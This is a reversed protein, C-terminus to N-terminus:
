AEPEWPRLHLPAVSREIDRAVSMHAPNGIDFTEDTAAMLLGGDPRHETLATSPPTVLHAVRPAVYSIWAIPFPPHIIRSREWLRTLSSPFAFAREADFEEAIALLASRFVRYTHTSTDAEAFHDTNLCVVNNSTSGARMSLELMFPGHGSPHSRVAFSYGNDTRSSAIERELSSLELAVEVNEEKYWHRLFPGAAALRCATALWRTSLAAPTEPRPAWRASIAYTIDAIM